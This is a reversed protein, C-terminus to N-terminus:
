VVCVFVTVPKCVNPPHRDTCLHTNALHNIWSYCTNFYEKSEMGPGFNPFHCALLLMLLLFTFLASDHQFIGSIKSPILHISMYKWSCPSILYCANPNLSNTACLVCLCVCIYLSYVRFFHQTTNVWCQILFPCVCCQTIIKNNIYKLLM